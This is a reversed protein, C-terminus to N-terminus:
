RGRWGRAEGTQCTNQCWQGAQRTRRSAPSEALCPGSAACMGDATVVKRRQPSRCAPKVRSCHGVAPVFIQEGEGALQAAQAGGAVLPLYEGLGGEDGVLDTGGHRMAVQHQRHRSQQASVERALRDQQAFEGQGGAVGDRCPEAVAGAARGALGAQDHDDM